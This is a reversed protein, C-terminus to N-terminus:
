ASDCLVVEYYRHQLDIFAEFGQEIFARMTGARDRDHYFAIAHGLAEIGARYHEIEVITHITLWRYACGEGRDLELKAVLAPHRSRLFADVLNFEEHAFFELAVHFGLARFISAAGKEVFFKERSERLLAAVRDPVPHLRDLERGDIRYYDLVGRFFQQSLYQHVLDWNGQVCYEDNAAKAVFAAIRGNAQQCFEGHAEPDIFVNPTLHILGVLFPVRAALADNFLAFRHLFRLLSSIDKISDLRQQLRANNSSAGITSEVWADISDSRALEDRPSNEGGPELAARNM